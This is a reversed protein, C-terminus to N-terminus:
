CVSKYYSTLKSNRIKYSFKGCVQIEATGQTKVVFRVVGVQSLEEPIQKMALAEGIVIHEVPVHEFKYTGNGARDTKCHLITVAHDELLQCM